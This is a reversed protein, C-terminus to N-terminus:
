STFLFAEIFTPTTCHLRCSQLSPKRGDARHLLSTCLRQVVVYVGCHVKGKIPSLSPIAKRAVVSSWRSRTPRLARETVAQRRWSRRCSTRGGRSDNERRCMPGDGASMLSISLTQPTSTPRQTTSHCQIVAARSIYIYGATICRIYLIITKCVQCSYTSIRTHTYQLICVQVHLHISDNWDHTGNAWHVLPLLTMMDELCLPFRPICLTHCTIARAYAHM